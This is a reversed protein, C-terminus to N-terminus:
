RQAKKRLNEDLIIKRMRMAKPTVEVLEDEQIYELAEELTFKLAPPLIVKEDTGKPPSLTTNTSPKVPTIYRGGPSAVSTTDQAGASLATLLAALLLTSIIHHRNLIM